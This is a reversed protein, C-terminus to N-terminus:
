ESIPLSWSEGLPAPAQFVVATHWQWIGVEADEAEADSLPTM